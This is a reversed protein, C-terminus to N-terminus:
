SKSTRSPVIILTDQIMERDHRGCWSGLHTEQVELGASRLQRHIWTEYYAIVHLPDELTWCRAAEDIRFKLPYRSLGAAEATQQSQNILFFTAMIRGGPALLAQLEHVYHVIAEGDMHTFVSALLIVDPRVGFDLSVETPNLTGNPNYRGNKVDLYHFTYLGDTAPTMHDACWRIHRELIDMGVYSGRHGRRWLGSAVRGYGSGIDMVTDTHKLSAFEALEAAMRDGVTYYEEETPEMFRLDAPPLPLDKSM